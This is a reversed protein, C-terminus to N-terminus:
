NKADAEKRDQEFNDFDNLTDTIFQDFLTSNKLLDLADEASYPIEQKADMKSM